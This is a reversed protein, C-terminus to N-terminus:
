ALDSTLRAVELREVRTYRQSLTWAWNKETKETVKDNIIPLQLHVTAVDEPASLLFVGYSEGDKRTGAGLSTEIVDALRSDGYTRYRAAEGLSFLVSPFQAEIRPIRDQIAGEAYFGMYKIGERFARDPQCVYASTAQYEPWALRAAVVVTDDVAVLSRAEYFSALENLLYRTQEGLVRSPSEIVSSIATVLGEFSLWHIRTIARRSVGDPERLWEPESSDPTLVFLHGLPNSDLRTRAYDRIQIRGHGEKSYSNRVTKTEFLWLFNASIEADPIAGTLGKKSQNKFVLTALEDGAGTALELLEQVLSLDIREFVAMTASTVQNEGSSYISFLPNTM